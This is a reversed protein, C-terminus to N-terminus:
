AAERGVYLNGYVAYSCLLSFTFEKINENSKHNIYLSETIGILCKM